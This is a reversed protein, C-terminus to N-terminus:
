ENLEGKMDKEILMISESINDALSESVNEKAYSLGWAFIGALIIMAFMMVMRDRNKLMLEDM